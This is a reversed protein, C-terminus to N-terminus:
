PGLALVVGDFAALPAAPTLVRVISAFVKEGRRRRFVRSEGRKEREAKRLERREKRQRLWEAVEAHRRVAAEIEEQSVRPYKYNRWENTLERATDVVARFDAGTFWERGSHQTYHRQCHEILNREVTYAAEIKDFAEIHDFEDGKVRFDKRLSSSRKKPDAAMGVKLLGNKGIAVYPHRQIHESM